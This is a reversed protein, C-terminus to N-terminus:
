LWGFRKPHESDEWLPYHFSAWVIFGRFDMETMNFKEKIEKKTRPHQLFERLEEKMIIYKGCTMENHTNVWM